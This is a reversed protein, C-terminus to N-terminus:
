TITVSTIKYTMSNVIPVTISQVYEIKMFRVKVAVYEVQVSGINSFNSHTCLLMPNTITATQM